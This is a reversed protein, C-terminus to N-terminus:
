VQPSKEKSSKVLKTIGKIPLYFFLYGIGYMLWLTGLMMYWCMYLLGYVILMLWATSGKTRVGVGFRVRGLGMLKRGFSIYM